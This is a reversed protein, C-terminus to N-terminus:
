PNEGVGLLGLFEMVLMYTLGWLVPEGPHPLSIGQSVMTRGDFRVEKLGHRVPDTLAELPVWFAEQVEDDMLRFPGAGTTLYVFCSVHVPIRTGAIDSLRGLFRATRLDLGTEELTEREATLRPDGEGNEVKGGPFSINGSWPDNENVARKIFLLRPGSPADVIILAVAARTGGQGVIRRPVHGALAQEIEAISIM